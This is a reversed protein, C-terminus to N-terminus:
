GGRRSISYESIRLDGKCDGAGYQATGGQKETRGRGACPRYVRDRGPIAPMATHRLVYLSAGTKVGRDPLGTQAVLQKQVAQALRFGSSIGGEYCYTETGTGGGANCHISVFLDAPWENAMRTRASLSANVSQNSLSETVANRTLRVEQGNQELMPKLAAAIQYTIDQERLGNGAAGTDAGEYNHGADILIKLIPEEKKSINEQCVGTQKNAKPLYLTDVSSHRMEHRQARVDFLPQRLAVARPTGHYFM